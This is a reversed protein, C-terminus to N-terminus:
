CHSMLMFYSRDKVRGFMKLDVLAEIKDDVTEMFKIAPGHDDFDPVFLCVIIFLNTHFDNVNVRIDFKLVEFAHLKDFEGESM